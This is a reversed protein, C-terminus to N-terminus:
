SFDWFFHRPSSGSVGDTDQAPGGAPRSFVIWWILAGAAGYMGTFAVLSLIVASCTRVRIDQM